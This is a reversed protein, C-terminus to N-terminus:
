SALWRWIRDNFVQDFRGYRSQGSQAMCSSVGGYLTGILRENRFLGSGSSGGETTGQSWRVSYFNSSSDSTSCSIGTGGSSMCNSFEYVGGVSYKLLNGGPHHLGYVEDGIQVEKRADWGSLTVGAPPMENLKLFSSDTTSTAYLLTAGASRRTSKVGPVGSNCSSSRYFWNTQLTSAVSQTSICHNATLFYPTYEGKTDNMLTGTCLYSNGDSLTYVMQAVANREIQYNNTCSADLNCPASTDAKATEAWEAETPLSLNQYIHSVMPISIRLANTATGAPLVVEVTADGAGVDPTWWTNAATGTEGAKRNQALLANIQAGSHEVIADPHEQSYIRLLAGDPLSDVLVGARLGYAGTSQINIAAVQQGSPLATWQLASQTQAVSTTAAVARATGIQLAPGSAEDSALTKELDLEPLVVFHTQVRAGLPVPVVNSSKIASEPLVVSDVVYTTPQAVAVGTAWLLGLVAYKSYKM